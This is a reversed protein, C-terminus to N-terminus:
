SVGMVLTPGAPRARRLLFIPLLVLALPILQIETRQAVLFFAAPGIWLTVALPIEGARFGTGLGARMLLALAPLLIPLDYDYAFPTLLPIVAALMAGKLADDRVWSWALAALAALSVVAQIMSAGGIGAGALRVAAFVSCMRVWPLDGHELASQALPLDDLFALWSSLGFLALSALALGGAALIAGALARWYRGCLLAVFAGAMLQPKYSLAGFCFGALWPRTELALLGGTLLGASILGNQGSILCAATGTSLLAAVPVLVHPVLRYLAWGFLALPIILWLALAVSYPLLSLPLVLLLFSPPYYWAYFGNMEGILAVEAARHATRDWAMAPHGALADSSALWFSIFDRRGIAGLMGPSAAEHGWEFSDLGGALWLLSIMALAFLLGFRWPGLRDLYTQLSGPRETVAPETM